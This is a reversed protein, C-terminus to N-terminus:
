TDERLQLLAFDIGRLTQQMQAGMTGAIQDARQEAQRLTAQRLDLQSGEFQWVYSASAALTLVVVLAAIQHIRSLSPM